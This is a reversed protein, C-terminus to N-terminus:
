PCGNVSNKKQNETSYRTMKQTPGSVPHGKKLIVPGKAISLVAGGGGEPSRFQTTASSMLIAAGRDMGAYFVYHVAIYLVADAPLFVCVTRELVIEWTDRKYHQLSNFKYCANPSM